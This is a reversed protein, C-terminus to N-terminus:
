PKGPQTALAKCLEETLQPTMGVTYCPRVSRPIHLNCTFSGGAGLLPAPQSRFRDIRSKTTTKPPVQWATTKPHKAPFRGCSAINAPKKLQKSVICRRM